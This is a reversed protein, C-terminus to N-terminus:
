LLSSGICCPIVTWLHDEVKREAQRM